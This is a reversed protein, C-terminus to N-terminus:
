KAERVLEMIKNAVAAPNSDIMEVQSTAKNVSYKIVRSKPNSLYTASKVEIEIKKARITDKFSPYRPLNIGPQITLLTPLSVKLVEGFGGEFDRQIRLTAGAEIWDTKSVVSVSPIQLLSALIAGTSQHGSDKSQSGAFVVDPSEVKIQAALEQGVAIPDTASISSADIRVARDAGMALCKRIGDESESDGLTIVVIESETSLAEKLKLAEELATYDAENVERQISSPSISLGDSAIEPNQAAIEVYKVLVVFKM